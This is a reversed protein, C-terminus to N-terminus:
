PTPTSEDDRFDITAALPLDLVSTGALVTFPGPEYHWGGPQWDAFARTPVPLTLTTTEGAALRVPAFAALWRVPRDISSDPRALYVQVVQKGARDGDNRVTVEIEADRHPGAHQRVRLNHLSWSTYGLGHGFPYAPDADSKLWARYGIHIDEDYHLKGDVPTVALVPVDEQRSPWTTPLRGGPETTGLLIDAVANGM